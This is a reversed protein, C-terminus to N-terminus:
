NYIQKALESLSLKDLKDSESKEEDNAQPKGFKDEQKVVGKASNLKGDTAIEKLIDKVESMEEKLSKEEDKMKSLEDDKEKLAEQTNQLTTEKEAKTDELAKTVKELEKVVKEHEEKSITEVKKEEVMNKEEKDEFGAMRVFVDTIKAGYNAAGSVFELGTVNLDDIITFRKGSEDFEDHKTPSNFEISMGDLFGDELMKTVADFYEPEIDRIHPNLEVEVHVGNEDVTVERPKGLPLRKRSAFEIAEDILTTNKNDRTAEERLKLLNNTIKDNMTNSHQTGIRVSNSKLGDAIRKFAKESLSTNYTDLGKFSAYGKVFYSKKKNKISSRVEIDQIIAVNSM